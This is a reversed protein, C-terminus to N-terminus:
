LMNICHLAGVSSSDERGESLTGIVWIPQISLGEPPSFYKPPYLYLVTHHGGMSRGAWQANVVSSSGQGQGVIGAAASDFDGLRWTM